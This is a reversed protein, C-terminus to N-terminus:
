AGFPKIDFQKMMAVYDQVGKELPFEPEFGLERRARSIDYVSALPSKEKPKTALEIRADKFMGRVIEILHGYSEPIGSGLHFLRNEPKEVFCAKVIGQALDKCYIFDNKQEIDEKFILPKGTMGSDIVQNVAGQREDSAQNHVPFINRPVKKGVGYTTAFRLAIFDLGFLRNYQLGMGEMFLKTVGYITFPAKPYDETIPKYTPAAYEGKPADYVGKTSACVVRKVGTLLCAEFINIPGDTNVKYHLPASELDRSLMSAMHIVREIKYQQMTRMLSPLDLVDGSVLTVKDMIDKLIGPDPNRNYTVVNHGMDVLKRTVWSGIFGTGSTVLISAM